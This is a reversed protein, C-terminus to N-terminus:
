PLKKPTFESNFKLSTFVCLDDCILCFRILSVIQFVNNSNGAQQWNNTKAKKGQEGATKTENWKEM